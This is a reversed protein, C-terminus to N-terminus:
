VKQLLGLVQPPNFPIELLGLCGSHEAQEMVLWSPKETAVIVAHPPSLMGNFAHVLSWPDADGLQLSIIVVEYHRTGVYPGALEATEAEDVDTLGALALRARLYLREEPKMGILLTVRRGPPVNNGGLEDLGSDADMYAQSVFLSDLVQVMVNWDVPRQFSRWGRDHAKNGVAIVKHNPNFTPSAMEVEAEHCDLDILSVHPPVPADPTWLNYSPAHRVSLRFLTNISHREVGSFGVVKVWISSAM